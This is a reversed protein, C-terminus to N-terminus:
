QLKGTIYKEFREAVRAQQIDGKFVLLGVRGRLSEGQKLTFPRGDYEPARRPGFTGYDRTLWRPNETGGDPHVFIALGETEGDISNTFTMWRARQDHTESQGSRGQDDILVGGAQANFQPHIRVYPWAYHVWDSTFRVDGYSATLKFSLDVLYEGDGLMHVTVDHKEDLVPTEGHVLWHHEVHFMTKNDTSSVEPRGFPKIYHRYGADPNGPEKMNRVSHYFDVEPLDGMKVKDAIWVSRHHPFPETQQVTLKKGSPSYLLYHPIAWRSGYEYVVAKTADDEHLVILQTRNDNNKEPAASLASCATLVPLVLVCKLMASLYFHRRMM